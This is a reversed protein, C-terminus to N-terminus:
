SELISLVSEALTAPNAPGKLYEDAPVNPREQCLDLLHVVERLFPRPLRETLGEGFVTWEEVMRELVTRPVRDSAPWDYAQAHIERARLAVQLLRSSDLAELVVIPQRVSVTGQSTQPPAVRLALARYSALGYREDEFLQDTGTALLLCGPLGNEGCEDILLRLTEYARERQRAQPFRRVLELEDIILLLGRYGGGNIIRLLARMRPFAEDPSLHGRVGIRHLASAPLARSGRLWSLATSATEQDGELRARYFSRLAPSLGPDVDALGALEEEIRAEIQPLLRDSKAQAFANDELGRLADRHVALLWSELLDTLASADRKEPTRLGDVLGSFFVPLDSLPQDPGIRVTSVAFSGELAQERLWSCLFTKGSGYAGRVFKFESKGGAAHHLLEVLHRRAEEQGVALLDLHRDPVVGQRLADILDRATKQNLDCMETDTGTWEYINLRGTSRVRLPNTRERQLKAMLDRMHAKILFWGLAHQRAAREIERETLSRAERLLALVIQEDQDLRPFRTQVLDLGPPSPAPGKPVGEPPVVGSSTQDELDQEEHLIATAADAEDSEGQPAAPQKAWQVLREIIEAKVGSVPIGLRRCLEVLDSRRLGGLLSEECFRSEVLRTIREEKSGSRRLGRAALLDSLLDGTLQDLLNWLQGPDLERGETDPEASAIESGNENEEEALDVTADFHDVLSSILDTKSLSVPLSCGRCLEKVKNIHLADLVEAPPVLGRVLREVREEKSGSVPLAANELAIHLQKGTLRNLLRRYSEDSLDIDWARRVQLVVEDPLVYEGDHVLVLGTALL